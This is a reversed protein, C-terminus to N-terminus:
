SLTQDEHYSYISVEIELGRPGDERSGNNLLSLKRVAPVKNKGPNDLVQVCCFSLVLRTQHISLRLAKIDKWLM